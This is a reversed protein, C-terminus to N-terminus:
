IAQSALAKAFFPAMIHPEDCNKYGIPTRQRVDIEGPIEGMRLMLSAPPNKIEGLIEGVFQPDVQNSRTMPAVKSRTMETRLDVRM